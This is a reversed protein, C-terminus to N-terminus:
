VACQWGEIVSIVARDLESFDTPFKEYSEFSYDLWLGGSSFSRRCFINEPSDALPKQVSTSAHCTALLEDTDNFSPRANNAVPASIKWIYWDQWLRKNQASIYRGSADVSFVTDPESLVTRLFADAPIGAYTRPQKYNLGHATGGQINIPFPCDASRDRDSWCGAFAFGKPTGPKDEPVWWPTPVTQENPVCFAETVGDVKYQTTGHAASCGCTALFATLPWFLRM